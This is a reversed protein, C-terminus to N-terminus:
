ESAKKIKPRGGKKGNEASTPKPKRGAAAQAKRIEIARQGLYLLAQIAEIEEVSMPKQQSEAKRELRANLFDAGKEALQLQEKKM